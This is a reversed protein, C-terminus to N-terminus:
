LRLESSGSISLVVLAMRFATRADFDTGGLARSGIGLGESASVSVIVEGSALM